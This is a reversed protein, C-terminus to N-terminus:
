LIVHSKWSWNWKGSNETETFIRNFWNMSISAGCQSIELQKLKNQAEIDIEVIFVIVIM